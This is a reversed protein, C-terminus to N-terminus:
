CAKLSCLCVEERTFGKSGEAGEDVGVIYVKLATSAQCKGLDSLSTLHIDVLCKSRISVTLLRGHPRGRYALVWKIGAESSQYQPVALQLRRM